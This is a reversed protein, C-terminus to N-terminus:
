GNETPDALAARAVTQMEYYDVPRGDAIARLAEVLRETDREPSPVCEWGGGLRPRIPEARLGAEHEEAQM